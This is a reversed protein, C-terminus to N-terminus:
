PLLPPSCSYTHNRTSLIEEAFGLGKLKRELGSQENLTHIFTVNDPKCFTILGGGTHFVAVFVDDQPAARPFLRSDYDENTLEVLKRVIDQPAINSLNEVRRVVYRGPCDRISEWAYLERLKELM